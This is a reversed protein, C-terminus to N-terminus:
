WYEPLAAVGGLSLAIGYPVGRKASLARAIRRFPGVGSVSRCTVLRDSLLGLLALVMGSICIISVVQMASAPGAWACVVTGLKVDGGGMAGVAYLAFMIIFGLGAVLAHHLLQSFELQSYVVVALWLLAYAAVAANPLRRERLDCWALATLNAIALVSILPTM